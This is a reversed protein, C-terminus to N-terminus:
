VGRAVGAARDLVGRTRGGPAYAVLRWEDQGNIAITTLVPVRRAVAKALFEKAAAAAPHKEAPPSEANQSRNAALWGDDRFIPLSLIWQQYRRACLPPAGR